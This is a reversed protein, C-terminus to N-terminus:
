RMPRENKNTEPPFKEIQVPVVFSSSYTKVRAFGKDTDQSFRILADAFDNFDYYKRLERIEDQNNLHSVFWNQTAKLINSSISSVEQTAYILGLNLKAGEKALRNYIQSLDKEEKKPFLNHAEEFYFQIFNNPKADTFRKLSNDFITRTIRESFMKQIEEEGLSLDVIVIKGLRLQNLIDKDFPAQIESTHQTEIPKLIRFGNCNAQGGPTRKRTLITLLAKLDDDAWERGKKKHYSTFVNADTYVEWFKSWWNSAEELSLNLGGNNSSINLGVADLVEKSIRFKVKFNEPAKFGAEYLCCLYVAIRRDHRTGESSQPSYNEPEDLAITRFNSVFRATDSSIAPYSRILSFGTLVENYFNVKMVKFDTGPKEVTSYRVTEDKFMEFIATGEDQLNPNAYEGNIDFVIQGIPYKPNDSATFPKLVEDSSEINNDLKLESKRSMEVCSQIIIKTTNSKGTRTMGFLATRKGAFDQPNVYVPVDPEQAQFRNSSSYRVAGIKIDSSGGPVGNERYNVIYSLVDANPKIVSYNHASYFNELDAGYRVNQANELYFCGLVSCKLGSFSYRYRTHNDLQSSDSSGTTVGEQYYEIMSTIVDGHQPLNIPELVRLLVAEYLAKNGENADYYALLLSGQPIGSAQQKWADCVLLEAESYTMHFPHGVFTGTNWALGGDSAKRKFIDISTINQSISM